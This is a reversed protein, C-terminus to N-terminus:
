ATNKTKRGIMICYRNYDDNWSQYEPDKRHDPLFSANEALYRALFSTIKVAGQENLHEGADYTDTKWNFEMKTRNEQLNLDIFNLGTEDAYKQMSNHRAYNWSHASPIELLILPIEANKCIEVFEDLHVKAEPSLQEIRDSSIMYEQGNFAKAGLNINQGKLLNKECLYAPKGTLDSAKMFKWFNHYKFIPAIQEVTKSISQTLDNKSSFVGDVDLIIQKPKQCSLAEQLIKVAQAVTQCPEACVYSTYGCQNWLEMPSFAAYADSNGVVLVDISDPTEAYFGRANQYARDFRESNHKPYLVGSAVILLGCFILLFLVMSGCNKFAQSRKTMSDIRDGKLM